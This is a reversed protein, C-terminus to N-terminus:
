RVIGELDQAGIEPFNLTPFDKFELCDVEERHLLALLLLQIWAILHHCSLLRFQTNKIFNGIISKICIRVFVKAFNILVQGVSVFNHLFNTFTTKAHYEPAVVM